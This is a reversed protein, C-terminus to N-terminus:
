FFIYCRLFILTGMMANDVHPPRCLIPPMFLSSKFFTNSANLLFFASCSPSIMSTMLSPSCSGVVTAIERISSSAPHLWHPGGFGRLFLCCLWQAAARYACAYTGYLALHIFHPVYLLPEAIRKALRNPPINKYLWFAATQYSAM